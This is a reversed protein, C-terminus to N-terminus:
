QGADTMMGFTLGIVRGDEFQKIVAMAGHEMLIHEVEAITRWAPITTTYNLVAM